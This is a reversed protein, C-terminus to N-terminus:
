PKGKKDSQGLAPVKGDAKRISEALAKIDIPVIHAAAYSSSVCHRRGKLTSFQGDILM